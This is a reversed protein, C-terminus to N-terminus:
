KKDPHRLLMGTKRRQELRERVAQAYLEDPNFALTPGEGSDTEEGGNIPAFPHKPFIVAQAPCTRSCAPCSNKCQAPNEVLVRGERISYVGFLCFDFCKRCGICRSYDIVPFWADTGEHRPLSEITSTYRDVLERPAEEIDLPANKRIDVVDTAKQGAYDFLCEVARKHCAVIRTRAIEGLSPDRNECLACLDEVIDVKAGEAELSAALRAMRGKDLFDRSTCACLTYRKSQTM